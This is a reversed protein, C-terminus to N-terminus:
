EYRIYESEEKIITFPSAPLGERNYLNAEEPNDAWAYRVAVPNIIQENWVVVNNGEIRANAWIFKQDEGAIAFHKLDGVDKAILGSGTNNFTIIINNGEIKISEYTPGSCAVKNDGYAIKQALLALRNGVGKKNLPHLDNWEGLDIAVAMGTNSVALTKRQEERLEAWNSEAPYEKAEMYNALQVFLFPFEGQNWKGRWDAILESFPKHYNSPKETNSEGQYWIVGKITYNILPSIMGNYLGMPKYQFFTTERLPGEAAAGIKYKWEGKLNITADISRLYYPKDKIFAGTGTNSVVRVAIINKGEKLVKEPITYRRPPYQYTTEGVFIGNVYVKDSDVIRGLTLRASKGAMEAPVNIEKRFWVVGSFNDLGFEQFSSPLQMKLWGSDDYESEFWQNEKNALGKDQENLSNYWNDTVIKDEEMIENVYNDDKCQYAVELDEPYKKLAEESMWAQVPSGGVSANILGIPVKYREFLAKAFFYGVATFRLINDQNAIEWSGSQLDQQPAKFDYRDPVIFLRINNNATAIEDAYLDSVRAMPIVMNSQGSCVWVDGILIDEVIITKDAKIVMDYPGGAKLPELIAIWKGDEDAIAEYSKDVFTIKVQEGPVAWGWINIETDRQLVMSNSILRPLRLGSSSLTKINTEM